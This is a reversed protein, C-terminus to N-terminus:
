VSMRDAPADYSSYTVTRITRQLGMKISIKKMRFGNVDCFSGFTQPTDIVKQKFITSLKLQIQQQQKKEISRPLTMCDEIM